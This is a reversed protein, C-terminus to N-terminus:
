ADRRWCLMCDGFSLFRYGHVLAHDYAMRWRDAGVFAALLALLSSRPQHFNTLLGDVVRFRFGPTIYLSTDHSGAWLAGTATTHSELTRVVTTGVAIVRGGQRRTVDVADATKQSVTCREQHMVHADLTTARIPVFTALGVELQVATWAVGRERLSSIARETFHLGATPAAASEAKGDAYVTQYRGPDDLRTRIYPPLPATGATDIAGEVDGDTAEFRVVRAGPHEDSVGAIHARMADGIHLTVGPNARRAPKALCLYTSED